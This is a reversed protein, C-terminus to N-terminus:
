NLRGYVDDFVEEKSPTYEEEEDYWQEEPQFGEETAMLLLILTKRSVDTTRAKIKSLMSEEPWNESVKKQITSLVLGDEASLEGKKTRRALEKAFPVNREFMYEQLIDRITLTEQEENEFDEFSPIPHSLANMRENFLRYANNHLKGLRRASRRLFDKLEEESRLASVEAKITETYSEEESDLSERSFALLESVEKKLRLAQAFTYGHALAFIDVLEDPDRWHLKEESLFSVFADSQKVDLGLIYCLEIADSKKITHAGSFWGRVRKEVSGKELEPHNEKLGLILRERAEEPDGFYALVEAFSRIKAEKELFNVADEITLVDNRALDRYIQTTNSFM